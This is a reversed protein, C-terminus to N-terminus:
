HRSNYHPFEVYALTAGPIAREVDAIVSTIAHGLDNADRAVELGIRGSMGIGCTVDTCGEEGPAELYNAGDDTEHPLNFVLTFEFLPM